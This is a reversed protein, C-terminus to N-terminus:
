NKKGEKVCISYSCILVLCTLFLLRGYRELFPIDIKNFIQRYHNRFRCLCLEMDFSNNKVIDEYTSPPTKEKFSSAVSDRSIFYNTIRIEFIKNSIIVKKSENEEKIFGFMSGLEIIHNDINFPEINGLILISYLLDYLEKYIELNKFLHDSLTYQKTTTIKVAKLISELSWDKNLEEDIIKCIYSVLFPYGSTYKYIEQSVINIDLPIDNESLYDVLMTKIDKPNFSMDTNLDAAINWPSNHMSEESTQPSYLGEKIMKLKINKINYVGALIVTHFTFDKGKGRVLYKSRLMDLFELFVRNNSAKDVEDVILVVLNDKCMRKIHLNLKIFSNVDKNFWAKM